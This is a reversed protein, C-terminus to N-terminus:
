IVACVFRKLPPRVGIRSCCAHLVSQDFAGNHAVLFDASAIWPRLCHWLEEFTPEDRVDKWGWGHIGTFTFRSSPPRILYSRSLVVGGRHGVAIGSACASDRRRTATEFDIAM